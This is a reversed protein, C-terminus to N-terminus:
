ADERQRMRARGCSPVASRARELLWRVEGSIDWDFAIDYLDADDTYLKAVGSM